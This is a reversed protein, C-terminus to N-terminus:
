PIPRPAPKDLVLADFTLRTTFGARTYLRLANPNAESVTLTLLRCARATLHRLAVTLLDQGLHRGRAEPAVCLQTIHATDPAIRSCLLVACLTHARRDRLLFSAEPDFTGCGPFRIINHLFRESGALTRYQDNIDADIHGLYARQVLEATPHYFGPSWRCLEVDAPFTPAAAPAFTLDRELFLRPFSRFRTHPSVAAAILPPLIGQDFLLLQAEIRRIDPSAELLELLHRTLAEVIALHNPERPSAHIDGIVAKFNEYVCFAYGVIRGRDLAVFGPLIRSDLYQLLLETSARYEWHLRQYWLAAEAELLPRLQRASFHRLDLIELQPSLTLAPSKPFTHPASICTRRSRQAESLIVTTKPPQLHLDKSKAASREPHCNDPPPPPPM